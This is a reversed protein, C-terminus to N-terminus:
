ALINRLVLPQSRLISWGGMSLVKEKYGRKMKGFVVKRFVVVYEQKEEDNESSAQCVGAPKRAELGEVTSAELTTLTGSYELNTSTAEAAPAVGVLLGLAVAIAIAFAM